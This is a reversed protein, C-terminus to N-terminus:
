IKCIRCIKFKNEILHYNENDISFWLSFTKCSFSFTVTILINFSNIISM